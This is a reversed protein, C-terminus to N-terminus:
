AARTLANHMALGDVWGDKLKVLNGECTMIDLIEFTITEGTPEYVRGAMNWPLAFTGTVFHHCVYFNEKVVLSHSDMRQDPLAKLIYDYAERCADIGEWKMLEQAGHIRFESDPTQLALIAELDCDNWAQNYRQVLEEISSPINTTVSM